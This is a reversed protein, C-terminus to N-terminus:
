YLAPHYVPVVLLCVLCLAVEAAQQPVSRWRRRAALGILSASAAILALLFLLPPRYYLFEDLVFGAPTRLPLVPSAPLAVRAVGVCLLALALLATSVRFRFRPSTDPM